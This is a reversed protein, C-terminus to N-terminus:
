DVALAGGERAEQLVQVPEVVAGGRRARHQQRAGPGVQGPVRQLLGGLLQHTYQTAPRTHPLDRTHTPPM